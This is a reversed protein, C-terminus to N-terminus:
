VREQSKQSHSFVFAAVQFSCCHCSMSGKSELVLRIDVKFCCYCGVSKVDTAWGTEVTM